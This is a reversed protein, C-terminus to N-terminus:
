RGELERKVKQWYPKTSEKKWGNPGGNHIRAMDEFTPERGIRKKTAYHELYIQVMSRSCYPNERHYYEYQNPSYYKSTHNTKEIRNVDDVYIKHIQFNGVAQGNDGIANPDGGSEVQEIADLLDEFTWLESQVPNIAIDAEINLTQGGSLREQEKYLGYLVFLSIILLGYLIFLAIIILILQIGHIKKMTRGRMSERMKKLQKKPCFVGLLVVNLANTRLIYNTLLCQSDIIVIKVNTIGIM